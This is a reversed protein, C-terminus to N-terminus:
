REIVLGILRPSKPFATKLNFDSHINVQTKVIDNLLRREGSYFFTRSEELEQSFKELGKLVPKFCFKKCGGRSDLFVQLAQKPTYQKTYILWSCVVFACRRHGTHGHIAVKGGKQVLFDITKLIPLLMKLLSFDERGGVLRRSTSAGSGEDGGWGAVGRRGQRKRGERGDKRGGKGQKVIGGRVIGERIPFM